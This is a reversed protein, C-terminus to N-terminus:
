TCLWLSFLQMSSMAANNDVHTKASCSPTYPEPALLINETVLPIEDVLQPTEDDTILPDTLQSDTQHSPSEQAADPSAEAYSATKKKSAKSKVPNPLTPGAERSENQSSNDTANEKAPTPKNREINQASFAPHCFALHCFAVICLGAWFGKLRPTGVVFEGLFFGISDTDASHILIKLFIMKKALIM